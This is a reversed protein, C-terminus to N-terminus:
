TLHAGRAVTVAAEVNAEPTDIPIVCGPALIHGEGHTAQLANAAEAAVDHASRAAILREDLGGAVCRGSRQRGEALGPGAHRDHWNLINAPYRHHLDFMPRTGHMHLMVITDPRIVELAVLDYPLGFALYEEQSMVTEDACQTAFFFGDAGAALAAEAMARTTSGISELAQHLADPHSRADEVARGASLKMAITLPSFLTHLLPVDPDLAARTMAIAELVVKNFGQQVDLPRLAPWDAPSKVPYRVTTRTGSRAGEYTTVGGWDIIPYDGPPMFKILDFTFRTQWRLTAATLGAATQDEEPFHRWLSVPPHDVPRGQIAALIRARPTLRTQEGM